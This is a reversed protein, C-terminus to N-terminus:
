RPQRTVIKTMQKSKEIWKLGRDRDRATGIGYFLCRGVEYTGAADGSRSARLYLRFSKRKDRGVGKGVEYAVALNRIADVIGGRAAKRELAVAVAFNKRVGIGHIHWTALAHAAMYHGRTVAAELLPLVESAHKQRGRKALALARQYMAEATASRASGSRKRVTRKGKAKSM